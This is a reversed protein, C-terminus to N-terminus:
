EGGVPEFLVSVKPFMELEKVFCPIVKEGLSGDLQSVRQICVCEEPRLICGTALIALITISYYPVAVVCDDYKAIFERVFQLFTFTVM